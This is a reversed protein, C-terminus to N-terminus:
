VGPCMSAVPIVCTGATGSSTVCSAPQMCGPGLMTDCAAGDAAFPQCAGTDSGTAVGTATYCAGAVCGVRTGDALQGCATGAPTPGSAGGDAATVGGDPGATTGAYGIRLCTKAGSPGGCYLGRTPDCGPMTGGCPVGVRTGATECTGTTGTKANSGVCSLGRDCPHTEDCIGNSTVVAACTSTAGLCRDGRSCTSTSCDEDTAPAAGCTGCASDKTGNCFGSSCQANFTCTAGDARPGTPTCPTPPLNNFFDVCTYSAFAVVCMEVAGPNQGTQPAALGNKCAQTERMLCTPLDGYNELLSFGPGDAGDPLSCESRLNCRAQAIDSCAQDVSVGSSSSSSCGIAAISVMATVASM